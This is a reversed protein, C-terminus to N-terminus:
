FFKYSNKPLSCLHILLAMLCSVFLAAILQPIFYVIIFNFIICGLLISSLVVIGLKFLFAKRQSSMIFKDLRGIGNINFLLSLLLTCIVFLWIDHPLIYSYIGTYWLFKELLEMWQNVPIIFVACIVGIIINAKKFSNISTLNKTTNMPNVTELLQINEMPCEFIPKQDPFNDLFFRVKVIQKPNVHDLLIRCSCSDKKQITWLEQYGNPVEEFYGPIIEVEENCKILIPPNKIAVNGTNVIDLTLLCPNKLAKGRYKIQLDTLALEKGQKFSNSLIPFIQISYALKLQKITKITVKWTVFCTLAGVAITTIIGGIGIINDQSMDSKEAAATLLQTTTSNFFFLVNLVRIMIEM